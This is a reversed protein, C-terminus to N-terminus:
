QSQEKEALFAKSFELFGSKARRFLGDELGHVAAWVSQEDRTWMGVHKGQQTNAVRVDDSHLYAASRDAPEVSNIAALVSRTNAISLGGYDMHFRLGIVIGRDDTFNRTELLGRWHEDTLLDVAHFYRYREGRDRGFEDEAEWHPRIGTKDEIEDVFPFEALDPHNLLVVSQGDERRARDVFEVPWEFLRSSLDHCPVQINRNIKLLYGNAVIGSAILREAVDDPMIPAPIFPPPAFLDLQM